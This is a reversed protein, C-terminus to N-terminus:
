QVKQSAIWDGLSSEVDEWDVEEGGVALCFTNSPQCGDNLFIVERGDTFLAQGAELSVRRAEAIIESADM